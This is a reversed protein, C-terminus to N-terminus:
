IKEDGFLKEIEQETETIKRVFYDKILNSFELDKDLFANNRKENSLKRKTIFNLAYTFISIITHGSGKANERILIEMDSKATRYSSLSSKLDELKKIKEDVTM